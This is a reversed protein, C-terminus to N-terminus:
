PLLLSSDGFSLFRYENELAENYVKKWNDGIFSAVLLILTSGPQHFNTILGKCVRFKYGPKIFIATEGILQDVGQKDMLAIISKISDSLLPLTAYNHYPDNQEIVFNSTPDSLLKVGFWYLSELTRMSTTGVAIINSNNIINELNTRTVVIQEAHMLHDNADQTKIPQFTGASVHLTLFDHHINAYALSKFTAATFHLGATPAAVAGEHHSYVTQYRVKDADEVNRHLYPPLPVQGSENIIEAFTKNGEWSFEVSGENRDILKASLMSDNLPKSLSTFDKWRKVKGISCKWVCKNEASMTVSIIPSPEIPSLLFVEIIAGTDKRFLIRAPIVKTDNFFLFSGKPLFDTLQYFRQHQIRGNSYVLLKSQDRQPLPFM